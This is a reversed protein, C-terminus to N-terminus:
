RCIQLQRFYLSLGTCMLDPVCSLALQLELETPPPSAAHVTHLTSAASWLAIYQPKRILSSSMSWLRSYVYAAGKMM